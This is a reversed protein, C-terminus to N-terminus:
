EPEFNPARAGPEDMWSVDVLRALFPYETRSWQYQRGECFTTLHM